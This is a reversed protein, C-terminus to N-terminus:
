FTVHDAEAPVTLELPRNVAGAPVAFTVTVTVLTCSPVFDADVVTETVVALGDSTETETAGVVTLV